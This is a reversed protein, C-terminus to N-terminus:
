RRYQMAEGRKDDYGFLYLFPAYHIIYPKYIQRRRFIIQDFVILDVLMM